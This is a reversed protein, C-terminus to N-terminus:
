KIAKRRGGARTEYLEGLSTYVSVNFRSVHHTEIYNDDWYPFGKPIDFRIYQKMISPDQLLKDVVTPEDKDSDYYTQNDGIFVKRGPRMLELIKESPNHGCSILINADQITKVLEDSLHSPFRESMFYKVCTGTKPHAYQQLNTNENFTRIFGLRNMIQYFRFPFDSREYEPRLETSGFETLPQSDVYIFNKIHKFLLIPIVDMGAGIYVATNNM